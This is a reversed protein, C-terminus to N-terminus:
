SAPNKRTPRGGHGKRLDGQLTLIRHAVSEALGHVQQDTFEVLAAPTKDALERTLREVEAHLRGTEELAGDRQRQLDAHPPFPSGPANLMEQVYRKSAYMHYDVVSGGGGPSPIQIVGLDLYPGDAAANQHTFHCRFPNAQPVNVWIPM